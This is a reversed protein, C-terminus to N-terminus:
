GIETIIQRNPDVPRGFHACHLARDRQRSPTVATQSRGQWNTRKSTSSTSTPRTISSDSTDGAIQTAPSAEIRTYAASDNACTSSEVKATTVSPLPTTRTRALSLQEYHPLKRATANQLEQTDSESTNREMRWSHEGATLEAVCAFTTDALERM